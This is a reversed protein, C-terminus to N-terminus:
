TQNHYWWLSDNLQSCASPNLDQIKIGGSKSQSALSQDVKESKQPNRTSLGMQKLLRNVHRDSIEIGLETNLHQSLCRATWRKFAYGHDKPSSTVLEKLRLLYEDNARKPRGVSTDAWSDSATKKAIAMWYRATDKSCGLASCIEVQSQGLHSRVMIELRRRHQPNFNKPLSEPIIDVLIDALDINQYNVTM